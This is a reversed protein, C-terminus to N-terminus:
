SNMHMMQIPAWVEKEDEDKSKVSADDEDSSSTSCDEHKEPDFVM